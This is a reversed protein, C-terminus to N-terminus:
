NQITILETQTFDDSTVNLLYIGDPLKVNLELGGPTLSQTFVVKGQFNYINALLCKQHNNNGMELHIDGSSPNPYVKFLGSQVPPSTIGDNIGYSCVSDKYIEVNKQPNGYPYNTFSWGGAILMSSDITVVTHDNLRDPMTMVSWQDAVPDYVDITDTDTDWGWNFIGGGVFYAKGCVTASQGFFGRALSLTDTTWTDNEYDYIDVRDSPVGNSISGGAFIVKNQAVTAGIFSRAQSLTATDWAGTTFNYIDVRDYVVSNDANSGGAFFALDGVVACGMCARPISLYKGPLWTNTNTNYIDVVDYAQNLGIDYGGAFLVLSDKSVASLAFRPVSLDVTGWYGLSNYIDVNSYCTLAPSNMDIGGAFFVKDGCTVGSAAERAQTLYNMEWLGTELDYIEVKDVDVWNSSVVVAGGAFFAKSGLTAGGMRIKGESLYTTSWQGYSSLVAFLIFAPFLTGKKM